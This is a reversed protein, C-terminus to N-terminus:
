EFLRDGKDQTNPTCVQVVMFHPNAKVWALAKQKTEFFRDPVIASREAVPDPMEGVIKGL